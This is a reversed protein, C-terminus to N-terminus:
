NRSSQSATVDAVFADILWRAISVPPPIHPLDDVSFWRVDAIERPDPALDGGAYEATFGVMLSNPFPWPQSGFYRINQVEVGVEERVERAVTEELSEGPEVFGALVSYYAEPFRTGHALLIENGRSIRVIVAPSIRPFALQGCATCRKARERPEDVTPEGCGGCYRHTRDWEVIQVARGAIAFHDDPLQGFLPFLEHFGHDGPPSASDALGVAFVWEESLQM